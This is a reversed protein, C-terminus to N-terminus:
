FVTEIVKDCDPPSYVWRDLHGDTIFYRPPPTERPADQTDIIILKMKMKEPLISKIYVGAYQGARVGERPEALGALNPTLEVFVGYEEVSRVIGAVTEGQAFLAANEEWTGLLERQSLCIRGNELSSVVGFVDMGPIFRDSPHSIRSVSISAIPMLAPLGCGIDCFAGFTELRTIRAPVVDGCCLRSIYDYRCREQADRRSLMARRRGDPLNEFGQVTFCVPKSVRSILAIDRTTGEAIGIAGEYYPIIGEMCPMEVHLNHEADCLVARAELVRGEMAAEALGAATRIAAQNRPTQLLAGEPYYQTMQVAMGKGTSGADFHVNNKRGVAKGRLEGIHCGAGSSGARPQKVEPGCIIYIGAPPPVYKSEPFKKFNRFARSAAAVM